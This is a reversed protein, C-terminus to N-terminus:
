YIYIYLISALIFYYRKQHQGLIKGEANRNNLLPGTVLDNSPKNVYPRPITPGRPQPISPRNTNPLHYFTTGFQRPLDNTNSEQKM